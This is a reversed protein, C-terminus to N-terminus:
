LFFVGMALALLVGPVVEFARGAGAITALTTTKAGAPQQGPGTGAGAVGSAGQAAASSLGSDEPAVDITETTAYVNTTTFPVPTVLKSVVFTTTSSITSCDAGSKGPACTTIVTASASYFTSTSRRTSTLRVTTTRTITSRTTSRTTSEGESGGAPVPHVLGTSSHSDGAGAEPTSAPASSDPGPTEEPPSQGESTHGQEAPPTASGHEGAAQSSDTDPNAHNQAVPNSDGKKDSPLADPPISTASAKVETDTNYLSASSQGYEMSTTAAHSRTLSDSPPVKHEDDPPIITSSAQSEAAASDTPHPTSPNGPSATQSSQQQSGDKPPTFTSTSQSQPPASDSPRAASPIGSSPEPSGNSAASSESSVPCVTTYAVVVETSLVTSRAPCSKVEAGCSTVTYVNTSYVTSTTLEPPEASGTTSDGSPTADQETVTGSGDHSSTTDPSSTASVSQQSGPRNVPDVISNTKGPAISSSTGKSSTSKSSSSSKSSSTSSGKSTTGKSSSSSIRKSSTSSPSIPDNLLSTSRRSSTSSLGTSSSTTQSGANQAVPGSSRPTQEATSSAPKSGSGSGTSPSKQSSSQGKEETVPCITTYDVVVDTVLVTSTLAKNAPCNTVATNCSTVTSFVTTKFVTSTTLQVSGSSGSAQTTQGSAANTSSTSGTIRSSSSSVGSTQTSGSSATKSTTTGGTVRSSSYSGITSITNSTTDPAPQAASLTALASSSVVSSLSKPLESLCKVSDTSGRKDTYNFYACKSSPELSVSKVYATYPLKNFDTVGGSWQIVGPANSPDGAVWAGLHFRSPTQPYQHEGNDCDKKYLVRVVKDDITWTLSEATWDIGYKHLGTTMEFDPTVFTSRDYSGTIGKGFYNTQVTPKKLAYNNGSWEWDVEDATDSMLVASSIVGAGPAAQMVVDVHGYLFYSTTWIYPADYRKEIPFVGGNKSDTRFTAYNAITWGNKPVDATALKTFDVRLPSTIGPIPACTEALPNCNANVTTIGVTAIACILRRIIM